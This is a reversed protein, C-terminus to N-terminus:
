FRACQLQGSPSVACRTKNDPIVDCISYDVGANNKFTFCRQYPYPPPVKQPDIAPIMCSLAGTSTVICSPGFTLNVTCVNGYCSGTGPVSIVPPSPPAANVTLVIVSSAATLATASIAAALFFRTTM